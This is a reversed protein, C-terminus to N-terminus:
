YREKEFSHKIYRYDKNFGLLTLLKIRAKQSPSLKAFVNIKEVKKKLEEDDMESIQSGLLINEVEIGVQKCICKTVGDNDGTLVKVSVGNENLAKIASLTSEKPPDLFALYGMLVMNSEDAVSFVGEVSPNTKQSVAIVRMGQSNLREVIELIEKKIIRGGNHVHVNRIDIIFKIYEWDKDNRINKNAYEKLYKSTKDIWSEKGKIDKFSVLINLKEKYVKCISYM